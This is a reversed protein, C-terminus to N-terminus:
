TNENRATIGIEPMILDLKNEQAEDLTQADKWYACSYVMRKDLMNIFLENGLDYHKEGIQFARGKSQM